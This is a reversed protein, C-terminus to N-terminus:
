RVTATKSPRTTRRYLDQRDLGTPRLRIITVLDEDAEDGGPCLGSM